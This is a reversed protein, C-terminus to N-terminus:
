KLEWDVSAGSEQIVRQALRMRELEEEILWKVIAFIAYVFINIGPVFLLLIWWGSLGVRKVILIFPLLVLACAALLYSSNIQIM